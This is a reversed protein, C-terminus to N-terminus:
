SILFPDPTEFDFKYVAPDIEVVEKSISAEHAAIDCISAMLGCMQNTRPTGGDKIHKAFAEFQHVDSIKDFASPDLENEFLVPDH